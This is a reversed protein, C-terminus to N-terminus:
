RDVQYLGRKPIFPKDTPGKVYGEIWKPRHTNLSPYWQNRWHGQVEWRHTWQADSVIIENGNSTHLEERRLRVVRLTPVTDTNMARMFQRRTARDAKSEEHVAIRQETFRFFALVFRRFDVNGHEDGILWPQTHATFWPMPWDTPKERSAGGLATWFNEPVDDMDAHGLFFVGPVNESDETKFLERTWTILRIPIPYMPGVPEGTPTVEAPQQMTWPEGLYLFGRSTLVDSDLLKDTPLREAAAGLLRVMDPSVWYTDAVDMVQQSKLLEDPELYPMRSVAKMDKWMAEALENGISSWAFGRELARLHRIRHELRKVDANARLYQAQLSQGKPTPTEPTRWFSAYIRQADLARSWAKM